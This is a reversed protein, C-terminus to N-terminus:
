CWLLRDFQADGAVGCCPPQVIFIASQSATVMCGLVETDSAWNGGYMVLMALMGLMDPMAVMDLMLIDLMALMYWCCRGMGNSWDLERLRVDRLGAKLSASHERCLTSRSPERLLLASSQLGPLM